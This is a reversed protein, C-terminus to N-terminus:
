SVAHIDKQVYLYYSGVLSGIVVLAGVLLYITEYRAHQIIYPWDFYKFPSIFREPSDPETALLAGVIFLGFVTSLSLPLVSKVRPIVVSLLVGIAFFMLQIFLMSLNILFFAKLSYDADKVSNAMLFAVLNYGLNTILLMTLAALLKATIIRVRSVPKTLLFDATRMRVEKSLISVGYNMAQIAAGVVIFGFVLSYFGLLTAIIELSVGLFARISEPYNAFLQRVAEADAAIGPFISFYIVALAALSLTWIITSKKLSNLEHLYINM